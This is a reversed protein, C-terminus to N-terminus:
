RIHLFQYKKALLCNPSKPVNQFNELIKNKKALERNRELLDQSSIKDTVDTLIIIHYKKQNCVYWTSKVTKTIYKKDSVISSFNPYLLSNKM